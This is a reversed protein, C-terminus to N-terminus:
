TPNTPPGLHQLQAIGLAILRALRDLDIPREAQTFLELGFFAATALEAILDVPLVDAWPLDGLVVRLEETAFAISRDIADGVPGTLAPSTRAAVLLEVVAIGEPSTAEARITDALRDPWRSAADDGGLAAKVRVMRRNSLEIATAALLQDMSGFHYFILGNTGGAEAAVARASTRTFGERALVQIAAEILAAKADEPNSRPKRPGAKAM